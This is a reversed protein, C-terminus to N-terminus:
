QFPDDTAGSSEINSDKLGNERDGTSSSGKDHTGDGGKEAKGNGVESSNGDGRQSGRCPTGTKGISGVEHSGSGRAAKEDDGNNSISVNLHQSISCEKEAKKKMYYKARKEKKKFIELEVDTKRRKQKLESTEGMIEDCLKYNRSTEAQKLRKEKLAMQDDIDRLDEMLENIRRKRSEEDIKIRKTPLSVTSSSSEDSCTSTSRKSRSKGKVFNYGDDEVKQRAQILLEGRKSLLSPTQLCLLIAAENIRQQYNNLKEM